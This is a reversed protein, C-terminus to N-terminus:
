QDLQVGSARSEGSNKFNKPKSASSLHRPSNKSPRRPSPASAYREERDGMSSFVVQRSQCASGTYEKLTDVTATQDNLQWNHLLHAETM